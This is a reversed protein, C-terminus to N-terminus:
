VIELMQGLTGAGLIAATEMRLHQRNLSARPWAQDCFFAREEKSWGAEPGFLLEIPESVKAKILDPADIDLVIPPTKNAWDELSRPDGLQMLHPCRSQKCAEILRDGMRKKSESSWDERVSHDTQLPSFSHVGIEQLKELLYPFRKGKPIPGFIKVGPGKPHLKPAELLFFSSEQKHCLRCRAIATYGLGDMLVTEQDVKGRLVRHFHHHEEPSLTISEGEQLGTLPPSWLHFTRL